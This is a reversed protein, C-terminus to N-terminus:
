SSGAEATAAGDRLSTGLGYEGQRSNIRPARTVLPYLPRYYKSLRKFGGYVTVTMKGVFAAENDFDIRIPVKSM